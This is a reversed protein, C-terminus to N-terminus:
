YSEVSVSSLPSYRFAKGKGNSRWLGAHKRWCRRALGVVTGAPISIAVPRPVQQDFRLNTTRLRYRLMSYGEKTGSERSAVQDVSIM